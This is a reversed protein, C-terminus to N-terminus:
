RFVEEDPPAATSVATLVDIAGLLPVVTAGGPAPRSGASRPIRHEDTVVPPHNLVM